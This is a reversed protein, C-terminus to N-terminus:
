NDSASNLRCQSAKRAAFHREREGEDLFRVRGDPEKMLKFGRCPHAWGRPALREEIAWSLVSSIAALYRNLTASSKTGRVRKPTFIKRGDVDLGKFALAPMTALESRAAHIVDSDAQELTMDGFLVQWVRLRSPLTGNRGRMVSCTGNIVERVALGQPREALAMLRDDIGAAANTLASM